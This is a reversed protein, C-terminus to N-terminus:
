IYFRYIYVDIFMAVVPGFIFIIPTRPAGVPMVPEGGVLESVEYGAWQWSSVHVLLQVLEIAMTICPIKSAEIEGYL